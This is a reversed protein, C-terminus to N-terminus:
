KEKEELELYVLKMKNFERKSNRVDSQDIIDYRSKILEKISYLEKEKTFEIRMKIM